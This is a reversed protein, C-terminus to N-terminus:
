KRITSASSRPCIITQRFLRLLRLFASQTHLTYTFEPLEMRGNLLELEIDVFKM